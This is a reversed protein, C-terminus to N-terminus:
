SAGFGTSQRWRRRPRRLSPPIARPTPSRTSCPGPQWRSNRRRALTRPAPWWDSGPRRDAAALVNIHRVLRNFLRKAEPKETDAVTEVRGRLEGVIAAMLAAKVDEYSEFRWPSFRVAVMSEDDARLAECTMSLPSSKGSGWDGAVGVTVPLIREDRLIVLLSDVLYDFGLLDVTTENDAWM